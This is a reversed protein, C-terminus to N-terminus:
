IASAHEVYAMLSGTGICSGERSGEDYFCIRRGRGRGRWRRGLV